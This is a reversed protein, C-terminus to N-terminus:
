GAIPGCAVVPGIVAAAGAVVARAVVARAVVVAVVAAAVPGRVVVRGAAVVAVPAAVRTALGLLLFSWGRGPLPQDGLRRKVASGRHCCSFNSLM